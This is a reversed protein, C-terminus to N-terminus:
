PYKFFFAFTNYKEHIIICNVQYYVSCRYRNTFTVWIGNNKRGM